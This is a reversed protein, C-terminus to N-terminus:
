DELCLFRIYKTYFYSLFRGKSQYFAGKIELEKIHKNKDPLEQTKKVQDAQHPHRTHTKEVFADM